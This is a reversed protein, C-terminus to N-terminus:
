LMVQQQRLQQQRHRRQAKLHLKNQVVVGITVRQNKIIIITTTIILALKIFMVIIVRNRVIREIFM